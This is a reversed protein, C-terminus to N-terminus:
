PQATAGPRLDSVCREVVPSVWHSGAVSLHNADEYLSDGDHGTILCQASPCMADKSDVVRLRKESAFTYLGREVDQFQALAADRTIVLSGTALHRREAMARAYPIPYPYGPVTLVVCTTAGAASAAALTREIGRSISTDPRLLGSVYGPWGASSSDLWYANLVVRQPRLRQIGQAMAQNFRVCREHWYNGEAGAESGLLPWCAGKVGFYIRLGYADALARYAPLLAQAHSDGWVVVKPASDDTPGFSCLDGGEIERDTLKLCRPEIFPRSPGIEAAALRLVGPDFRGPLGVSHMLWHGYLGLLVMAPVAFRLLPRGAQRRSRARFPREVFRWSLVSVGYIGALLLAKQTASLETVSYYSAFALVPAHWLYLSYSILGTFVLPRFSLARGVGTRRGANTRILLATVACAAVTAISPFHEFSAQWVVAGLVGLGLLSLGAREGGAAPQPYLAVAVGMLLEWGRTPLLYYNQVPWRTAAWVSLCLSSLALLAVVLIRWRPTLRLIAFLVLPFVLYFQEEVGISWLHRLPTFRWGPDFYGGDRWAGVNGLFVTALLLGRGFRVLGGTLLPGDCCDGSRGSARAAGAAPTARPAPLVRGM